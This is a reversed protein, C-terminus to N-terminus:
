SVPRNELSWELMGGNLRRARWGNSRLLRVAAYALVCYEGRCYAVVELDAPLESLRQCLEDLPIGIAGEIHAATFETAPRVDLLVLEGNRLGDLLDDRSIAEVEDEGLFERAVRETEALYMMAVDRLMVYLRAVDGAALRYYIRAGDRRGRVLGGARLTQLHASATTLKLATAQALSEVTREGQALVDIIQLRKPNALAKGVRALQDFLADKTRARDSM